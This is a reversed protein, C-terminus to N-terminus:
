EELYEQLSKPELADEKQLSKIAEIAVYAESVTTFYPINLRLVSQRIKKADDKCSKNDSTNIVLAVYKNKLKDEINPRGESIKYVFEAEIGADTLAKHTGGTAIISFGIKQFSEGLKKAFVKDADTLSLFVTGDNPLRNGAAIQSKAFSDAFSSSIGMVEGTSKMEPGLITDAGSLKNFPFVAEKVAIHNKIKAKLIGNKEHTINYNDYFKLAERLDGQYMVRTAVKAMPIGTAKSVFPVTRSARPNVEIMYIDDQYVAYQINMLGVVGLNLAIQKTQSEVKKIIDESLSVAPLSCASDGSHIGAEEIHQMIGGIYVDKGDSIADVDIEVAR